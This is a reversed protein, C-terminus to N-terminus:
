VEVDLALGKAVLEARAGDIAKQKAVATARHLNTTFTLKRCGFLDYSFSDFGNTEARKLEGEVAFGEIGNRGKMEIIHWTKGPATSQLYTGHM